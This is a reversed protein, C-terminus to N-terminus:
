RGGGGAAGQGTERAPAEQVTGPRLRVQAPLGPRLQPPADELDIRAEYVLHASERETLAFHPTFEPERAIDRVKGELTHDLGVVEVRAPSGPAVRAAARAPLWVRVWPAEDSLVVAVVGGAPAREGEDFAIQDVVGPTASRITLDSLRKTAQAIRAEKEAVQALAEDRKREAEDLSQATSVGAKRLRAVRAYEGEAEKLLAAAAARGAQYAKLDAEAVTTDLQVVVQGAAVHEGVKVPVDVVLEADPAALELATREVTGALQLEHGCGAALLGLGLVAGAARSRRLRHPPTSQVM